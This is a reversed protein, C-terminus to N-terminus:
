KIPMELKTRILRCLNRGLSDDGERQYQDLLAQAVAYHHWKQEESIDHTIWHAAFKCYGLIDHLIHLVTKHCVGVETALEM